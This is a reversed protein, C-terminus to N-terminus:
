WVGIWILYNGISLGIVLGLFGMSVLFFITDESKWSLVCLILAVVFLVAFLFM